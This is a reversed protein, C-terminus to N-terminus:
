PRNHRYGRLLLKLGAANTGAVTIDATMVSNDALTTDSLVAPAASTASTSQGSDIRLLTSFITTGNEKIDITPNGSSSAATLSGRPIASLTMAFPQRWTLKATGTTIPTSEDGIAILIEASEILPKGDILFFKIIRSVGSGEGIVLCADGAVVTVNAQGEILLNSSHNVQPTSDFVLVRWAGQELVMTDIAVAGTVHGFNGTMNNLNISTASALSASESFNLAGTMTGGALALYASLATTISTDATQVPNDTRWTSGDSLKIIRKYSLSPDLWHIPFRGESDSANGGSLTAGLSTMLTADSYVAQPAGGTTSYEITAGVKPGTSTIVQIYQPGAPSAM